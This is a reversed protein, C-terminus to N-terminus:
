LENKNKKNIKLNKTCKVNKNNNYFSVTRYFSYFKVILATM